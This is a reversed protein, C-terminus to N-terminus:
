LPMVVTSTVLRFLGSFRYNIVESPFKFSKTTEESMFRM